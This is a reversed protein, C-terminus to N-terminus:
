TFVTADGEAFEIHRFMDGDVIFEALRNIAGRGERKIRRWFGFVLVKSKSRKAICGYFCSLVWLLSGFYVCDLLAM